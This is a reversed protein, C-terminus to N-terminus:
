FFLWKKPKPLEKLALIIQSINSYRNTKGELLGNKVEEQSLLNPSTRFQYKNSMKSLIPFWGKPLNSNDPLPHTLQLNTFISPNPHTLPLTGVLSKWLVIGLSYIDTRHDVLYLYNLLLEPAAYGLPFLTSRTNEEGLNVALGFDILSVSIEDAKQTVIINSPKIDCHVINNEDLHNFIPELKKLLTILTEKRNKSSIGKWFEELTKGETFSKILVIETENEFFDLTASLGEFDFSFSAEKRLREQLHANSNTKAITKMVGFESNIKNQVLYVDGFKRNTQKGLTKILKYKEHIETM